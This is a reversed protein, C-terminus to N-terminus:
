WYAQAASTGDPQGSGEGATYASMSEGATSTGETSGAQMEPVGARYIREEADASSARYANGEKAEYYSSNGDQREQSRQSNSNFSDFNNNESQSNFNTNNNEM